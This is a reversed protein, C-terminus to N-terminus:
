SPSRGRGRVLGAAFYDGVAPLDAPDPHEPDFDAVPFDGRDAFSLAREACIAEIEATVADSTDASENSGGCASLALLFGGDGAM